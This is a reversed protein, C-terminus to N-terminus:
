VQVYMYKRESVRERKMEGTLIGHGVLGCQLRGVESM